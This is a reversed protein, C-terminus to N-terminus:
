ELDRLMELASERISADTGLEAAKALAERARERNGLQANVFGTTLWARQHAPEIEIALRLRELAEQSRGLYHLTIALNNLVDVNRADSALLQEYLQAARAYDRSGFAEDAQRSIALPDDAAPVAPAPRSPGLVRAIAEASPWDAVSRPTGVAVAERSQPRYYQRTIAFVALGFVTQFLVIGTWIKVNRRM